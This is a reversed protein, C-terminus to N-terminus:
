PVVRSRTESFSSPYQKTLVLQFALPIRVVQLRVRVRPLM